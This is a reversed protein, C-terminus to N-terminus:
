GYEFSGSGIEEDGEYVAFTPLASRERDLYKRGGADNLEYDLTLTRGLRSTEVNLTLPAGGNLEHPQEPALTFWDDDTRPRGNGLYGGQLHVERVFYRGPPLSVSSAPREFEYVRDAKNVLVLREILKGNINLQATVTGAAGQQAAPEASFAAAPFVILLALAVCRRIPHFSAM